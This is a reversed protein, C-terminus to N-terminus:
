MEFYLKLLREKSHIRKRTEGTLLARRSTAMGMCQAVTRLIFHIQVRICLEKHHLEINQKILWKENRCEHYLFIELSKSLHSRRINTATASLTVSCRKISMRLVGCNVNVYRGDM